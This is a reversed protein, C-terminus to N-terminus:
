NDIDAYSIIDTVLYANPFDKKVMKFDAYADHKTRYNGVRVKFYNPLDFKLYSAIDPFSSIFEAKAENANARADRGSGRYIQIRYGNVGGTKANSMIHRSILSDIRIDQSIELSGAGYRGNNTILNEVEVLEQAQLGTGCALMAILLIYRRM